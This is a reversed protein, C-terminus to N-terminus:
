NCITINKYQINLYKKKFVLTNQLASRTLNGRGTNVASVRPVSQRVNDSYIVTANSLVLSFHIRIQSFNNPSQACRPIDNESELLMNNLLKNLTCM